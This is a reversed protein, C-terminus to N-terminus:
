ATPWWGAVWWLISLLGSSVGGTSCRVPWPLRLWGGGGGRGCTGARHRCRTRGCSDAVRAVFLWCGGIRCSRLRTGAGGVFRGGLDRELLPIVGDGGIGVLGQGSCYWSRLSVRARTGCCWCGTFLVQEALHVLEVGVVEAERVFLSVDLGAPHSFLLGSM